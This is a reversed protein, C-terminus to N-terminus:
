SVEKGIEYLMDPAFDVENPWDITGSEKNLRVKQFYQPNKLPEFVGTKTKLREWLDVVKSIGNSFSLRLRYEGLYEFDNVFIIHNNM